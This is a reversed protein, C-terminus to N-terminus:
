QFFTIAGCTVSSISRALIWTWRITGVRSEVACYAPVVLSQQRSLGEHRFARPSAGMRELLAHAARDVLKSDGRQGPM